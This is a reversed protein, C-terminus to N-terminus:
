GFVNSYLWSFELLLRFFLHYKEFGGIVHAEILATTSTINGGLVFNRVGTM